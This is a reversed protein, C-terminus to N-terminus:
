KKAYYRRYIRATIYYILYGLMGGVTNMIIDDVDFVGLMSIYQITEILLTFSFSYLLAIWANTRKNRAWRILMGFPMFAVVNGVINFMFSINSIAAGRYTIFRRIETFPILNVNREYNPTRGFMDSFILFYVITVIYIIFLVFCVTRFKEKKIIIM